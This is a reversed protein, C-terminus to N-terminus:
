GTNKQGNADIMGKSTLLQIHRAATAHHIGLIRGLARNGMGPQYADFARQLEPSLSQTFRGTPAAPQQPATSPRELPTPQPVDHRYPNPALPPMTPPVQQQQTPQTTYALQEPLPKGGPQLNELFMDDERDVASAVYTSPGLLRYLSQNDVYPVHALTAQKISLNRMMVAGKGLVDEQIQNAPLDLLVRATTPDGGVYFATRYCERIAGGGQPAITKVLFDQAATILFIGVKRGERLIASLYEPAEKIHAVTAPLEDLVIYYPKGLPQSHAYKEMRKPLLITAVHKLYHEIVDYKRCEM